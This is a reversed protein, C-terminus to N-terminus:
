KFFIRQIYYLIFPILFSNEFINKVISVSFPDRNFTFTMCGCILSYIVIKQISNSKRHYGIQYGIASFVLASGIIGFNILLSVFAHLGGLPMVYNYGYNNPNLIYNIKNPFISSPILNIFDSLLFLPLNFLPLNGSSLFSFSSIATLMPEQAINLGMNFLSFESGARLVGWTAAGGIGALGLLFFEKLKIKWHYFTSFFIIISIVNTVFYLRGGLSLALIAFVYYAIMFPDLLIPLIKQLHGSKVVARMFAISFLISTSAIFTGRPLADQVVGDQYNEFLAADYGTFFYHRIPIAMLTALFIGIVGMFSWYTVARESKKNLVKVYAKRHYTLYYFFSFLSYFLFSLSLYLLTADDSISIFNDVVIDLEEPANLRLFATIFYPTLWYYAYGLSFFFFGDLTITSKKICFNYVSFFILLYNIACLFFIM